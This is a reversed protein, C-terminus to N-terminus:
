TVHDPVGLHTGIGIRNWPRGGDAGMGLRLNIKCAGRTSEGVIDIAVDGIIALAAILPCWVIQFLRDNLGSGGEFPRM